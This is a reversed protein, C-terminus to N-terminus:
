LHREPRPHGLALRTMEHLDTPDAGTAAALEARAAQTAAEGTLLTGPIPTLEGREAADALAAYPDRNM